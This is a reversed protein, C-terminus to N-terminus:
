QVPSEQIVLLLHKLLCMPAAKRSDEDVTIRRNSEFHCLGQVGESVGVCVFVRIILPTM